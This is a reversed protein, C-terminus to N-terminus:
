SVHEMAAQFMKISRQKTFKKPVVRGKKAYRALLKDDGWLLHIMDAAEKENKSVLEPAVDRVAFQFGVGESVIPVLGAAMAELVAVGAPEIRALNIYLSGQKLYELPNDTWGTYVVNGASSKKMPGDGVLYLKSDPFESEIRKFVRHIKDVGKDTTLFGVFIINKATRKSTTHYRKYDVFLEAIASKHHYQKPILNLMMPTTPIFLDVAEFAKRYLRKKLTGMTPYFYLKPDDVILVLKGQPNRRKWSRGALIDSGGECLLVETETPITKLVSRSQLFRSINQIPYHKIKNPVFAANISRAWTAHTHHPGDFLFSVNM